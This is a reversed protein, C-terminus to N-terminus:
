RGYTEISLSLLAAHSVDHINPYDSFRIEIDKHTLAAGDVDVALSNPIDRRSVSFICSIDIFLPKDQFIGHIGTTGIDLRRNDNGDRRLHTDRVYREYDRRSLNRGSEKFVLGWAKVLHNHRSMVLGTRMCTTLHFGYSDLDSNCRHCTVALPDVPLFLRRALACSFQVDDM